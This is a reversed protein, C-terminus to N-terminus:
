TIQVLCLYLRSGTWQTKEGGGVPPHVPHTQVPAAIAAPEPNQYLPRYAIGQSDQVSGLGSQGGDPFHLGCPYIFRLGGPVLEEPLESPYGQLFLSDKNPLM